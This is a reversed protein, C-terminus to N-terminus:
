TLFHWQWGFLFWICCPSLYNSLNFATNNPKFFIQLCHFLCFVEASLFEDASVPSRKGRGRLQSATLFFSISGNLYIQKEAGGGDRHSVGLVCVCVCWWWGVLLGRWRLPDFLPCWKYALDKESHRERERKPEAYWDLVAWPFFAVGHFTDAHTHTHTHVPPNSPRNAERGLM